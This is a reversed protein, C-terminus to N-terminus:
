RPPPDMPSTWPEFTSSRTRNRTWSCSRESRIFNQLRLHLATWVSVRHRLNVAHGGYIM